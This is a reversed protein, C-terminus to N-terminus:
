EYIMDFLENAKKTDLKKLIEYEEKDNSKDM